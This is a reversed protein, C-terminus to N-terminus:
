QSFFAHGHLQAQMVKEVGSDAMTAQFQSRQLHEALGVNGLPGFM